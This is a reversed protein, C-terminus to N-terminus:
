SIYDRNIRCGVFVGVVSGVFSTWYATMFGFHEGLAWGISSFITISILLCVKKMYKWEKRYCSRPAASDERESIRM